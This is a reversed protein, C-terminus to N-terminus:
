AQRTHSGVAALLDDLRFPKGIFGAAGIARADEEADLAATCIVIPAHPGPQARYARAFQRGDMVPMRMDLLIMAPDCRRVIDLAEVGDTAATVDYGEEALASTILERIGEDDDVVLVRPRPREDRM